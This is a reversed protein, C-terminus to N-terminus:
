NFDRDDLLCFKIFPNHKDWIYNNLDCKLILNIADYDQINLNKIDFSM